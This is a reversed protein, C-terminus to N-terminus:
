SRPVVVARIRELVACPLGNYLDHGAEEVPCVEVGCAAYRSREARRLYVSVQPAFVSLEEAGLRAVIPWLEEVLINNRYDILARRDFTWGVGEPTEVVRGHVWTRLRDGMMVKDFPALLEARTAATESASALARLFPSLPSRRESISGAPTDLLVFPGLREPQMDHLRLAVRGGMSHAVVPLREGIELQDLLAVIAEAMTSSSANPPLPPSEGHALLDPILARTRGGLLTRAFRELEAGRGFLGHVFLVTRPGDGLMRHALMTFVSLM